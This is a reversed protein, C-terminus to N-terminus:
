CVKKGQLNFSGMNTKLYINISDNVVEGQACYRVNRMVSRFSGYVSFKNGDITGNNFEYRKGMVEIYGSLKNENTVLKLKGDISRRNNKLNLEYLGDM